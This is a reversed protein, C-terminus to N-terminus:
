RVMIKRGEIKFNVEGTMQLMNLIESIKMRRSAIGGFLKNEIVKNQYIVDVNYWKALKRMINNLPEDIFIFQDNKWAIANNADVETVQLNNGNLAAQQGPVIKVAEKVKGVSGSKASVISVEVLGELLTTKVISEDAYSSVNFHTGLVRIQQQDNQVVFPHRSDKSVEFYAEGILYVKRQKLNAFSSPFKLVSGANMWVLSGDPLKVQYEGGFPTTLTLLESSSPQDLTKNNGLPTGDNYSLQNADIVVGTKGSSLNIRRGDALTLLAKNTGPSVDNAYAIAQVKEPKKNLYIFVSLVVAISAAAAALRLPWLKAAPKQEEEMVELLGDRISEKAHLLQKEDPVVSNANMYQFLWKEFIAKEEPSSSGDLYKNWLEETLRNRM